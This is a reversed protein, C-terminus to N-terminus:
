STLNLVRADKASYIRTTVPYINYQKSGNIWDYDTMRKHIYKSVYGGAGIRKDYDQIQARGYTKYAWQWFRRKDAPTKVLAHIHMGDRVDFEEAAWFMYQEETDICYNGIRTAMRRASPLSLEYRTTFTCWYTWDKSNLWDTWATNLATTSYTKVLLESSPINSQLTQSPCSTPVARSNM